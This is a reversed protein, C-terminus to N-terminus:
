AGRASCLYLEAVHGSLAADNIGVTSVITRLNPVELCTYAYQTAWFLMNEIVWYAVELPDKTM